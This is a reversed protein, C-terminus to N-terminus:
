VKNKELVWVKKEKFSAKVGAPITYTKGDPGTIETAGDFPGILKEAKPKKDAKAKTEEAKAKTEEAM